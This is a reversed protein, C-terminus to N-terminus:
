SVFVYLTVDHSCPYLFFSHQMSFFCFLSSYVSRGLLHFLSFFIFYVSIIFSSLFLVTYNLKEMVCVILESCCYSETGTKAKPQKFSVNCLNALWQARDRKPDDRVIVFYGQFSKSCAAPPGYTIRFCLM